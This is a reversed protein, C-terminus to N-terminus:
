KLKEWKNNFFVKSWFRVWANPAKGKEPQWVIAKQGFLYCKWESLEPNKITINEEKPKTM